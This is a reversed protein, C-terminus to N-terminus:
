LIMFDSFNSFAVLIMKDLWWGMVLM